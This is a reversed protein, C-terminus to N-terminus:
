TVIKSTRYPVTRIGAADCGCGVVGVGVGVLFHSPVVAVLSALEVVVLLALVLWCNHRSLLM